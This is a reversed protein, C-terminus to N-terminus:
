IMLVAMQRRCFDSEEVALSEIRVRDGLPYTALHVPEGRTARQKRQVKGERM